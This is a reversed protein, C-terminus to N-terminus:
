WIMEYWKVNHANQLPVDNITRVTMWYSEKSPLDPVCTPSCGRGVRYWVVVTKYHMKYYKFYAGQLHAYLIFCIPELFYLINTISLKCEKNTVNATCLQLTHATWSPAACTSCIVWILVLNHKGWTIPLAWWLKFCWHGNDGALTHQMTNTEMQSLPYSFLCHHLFLPLYLYLKESCVKKKANSKSVCCMGGVLALM